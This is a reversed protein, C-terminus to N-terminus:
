IQQIYIHNSNGSYDYVKFINYKKFDYLALLGYEDSKPYEDYEDLEKIYTEKIVDIESSDIIKESIVLYKFDISYTLYETFSNTGILIQNDPSLNYLGNLPEISHMLTNNFYYNLVNSDSSYTILLKHIKDFEFNVDKGEYKVENNGNTYNTFFLHSKFVKNDWEYQYPDISMSFIDPLKWLLNIKEDIYNEKKNVLFEIYISFDNNGAVKKCIDKRAVGYSKLEPWLLLLFNDYHNIM